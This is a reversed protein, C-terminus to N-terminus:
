KALNSVMKEKSSLKIKSKFISLLKQVKVFLIAVIITFTFGVIIPRAFCIYYSPRGIMLFPFTIFFLSILLLQLFTNQADSSKVVPTKSHIIFLITVFMSLLIGVSCIIIFIKSSTKYISLYVEQYPDYCNTRDISSFYFEPCKICPNTGTNEKMFNLKCRVCYWGREKQWITQSEPVIGFEKEYGPKCSKIECKCEPPKLSANNFWRIKDSPIRSKNFVGTYSEQYLYMVTSYAKFEESTVYKEPYHVYTNRHVLFMLQTIFCFFATKFYNFLTLTGFGEAVSTYNGYTFYEKTWLDNTNSRKINFTYDYPRDDNFQDIMYVIGFNVNDRNFPLSYPLSDLMLNKSMNRQAFFSLFTKRGEFDGSVFLIELKEDSEIKSIVEIIKTKNSGPLIERVMCITNDKLVKVGSLTFHVCACYCNQLMHQLITITRTVM